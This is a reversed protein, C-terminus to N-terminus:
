ETFGFFQPDLDPQAVNRLNLPDIRAKLHGCARYIRIMENLQNQLSSTSTAEQSPANVPATLGSAEASVGGPASAPHGNESSWQAFFAQWESSVSSPDALYLRWARRHVQATKGIRVRTRQDDISCLAGELRATSKRNSRSGGERLDHSRYEYSLRGIM